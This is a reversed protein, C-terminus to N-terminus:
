FMRSVPCIQFTLEPGQIKRVLVSPPLAGYISHPWYFHTVDVPSSFKIKYQHKSIWGKTSEIGQNQLYPKNLM